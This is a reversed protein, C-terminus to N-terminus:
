STRALASRGIRHGRLRQGRRVSRGTDYIPSRATV